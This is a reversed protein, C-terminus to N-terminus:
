RYMFGVLRWRGVSLGGGEVVGVRERSDGQRQRRRIAVQICKLRSSGSRSFTVSAKEGIAMKKKNKKENGIKVKWRSGERGGLDIEGM